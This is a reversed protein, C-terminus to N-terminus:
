ARDAVRGIAALDHHADVVAAGEVAAADDVEAVGRRGLEAEEAADGRHLQLPDGVGVDAGAGPPAV